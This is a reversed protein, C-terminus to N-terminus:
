RDSGQDVDNFEERIKAVRKAIYPYEKIMADAKKIGHMITTHDRGGFARGIRPLSCPTMERCLFYAIQRATYIDISRRESALDRESVGFKLAVLEKIRKLAFLQSNTDM